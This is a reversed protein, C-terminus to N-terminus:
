AQRARHKAREATGVTEALARAVTRAASAKFDTARLVAHWDLYLGRRTLRVTALDGAALYPAATRRTLITLSFGALVLAIM